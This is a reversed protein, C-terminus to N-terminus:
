QSLPKFLNIKASRLQRMVEVLREPTGGWIRDAVFDLNNRAPDLALQIVIADREKMERAYQILPGRSNHWAALVAVVLLLFGLSDRLRGVTSLGLFIWLPAVMLFYRSTEHSYNARGFALMATLLFMGVCVVPISRIGKRWTGYCFFGAAILFVPFAWRAWVTDRALYGFFSFRLIDYYAQVFQFLNQAQLPSHNSPRPTVTCIAAFIILCAISFVAATRVRPNPCNRQVYAAGVTDIWFGFLLGGGVILGMFFVLAQFILLLFLFVWESEWRRELYFVSFLIFIPFLPAYSCASMWTEFAATSMWILVAAVHIWTWQRDIQRMRLFWFLVALSLFGVQVYLMFPINWDSLRGLVVFYLRTLPSYHESGPTWIFEWVSATGTIPELFVDDDNRPFIYGYRRVVTVWVVTMAAWAGIGLVAFWAQPPVLFSSPRATRMPEKLVLGKNQVARGV